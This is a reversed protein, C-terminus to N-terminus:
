SLIEIDTVGSGHNRVSETASDVSAHVLPCTIPPVQGSHVQSVGRGVGWNLGSQLDRAELSELAPRTKGRDRRCTSRSATQSFLGRFKTFRLM